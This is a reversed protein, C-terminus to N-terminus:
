EYFYDTDVGLIEAAKDAYVPRPDAIGAMWRAVAEVSAGMEDALDQPEMRANDLAKIFKRRSFGPAKRAQITMTM